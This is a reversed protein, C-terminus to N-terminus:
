RRGYRMRPTACVPGRVVATGEKRIAELRYYSRKGNCVSRDEYSTSDPAFEGIMRYPEKQGAARYLKLGALDSGDRVAWALAVGHSKPTATFTTIPNQALEDFRVVPPEGYEKFYLSPPGMTYQFGDSSIVLGFMTGGSSSVRSITNNNEQGGNTDALVAWCAARDFIPTQELLEVLRQYRLFSSEYYYDPDPNFDGTYHNASAIYRIGHVSDQGYTTDLATSRVQIRAMRGTSFEVIHVLAGGTGFGGDQYHDELYGVAEDLTAAHEMIYRLMFNIPLGIQASTNPSGANMTVGIGKENLGYAVDAWGPPDMTLYAYDGNSPQWHMLVVINDGSATADTNHCLFTGAASTVAFGTCNRIEYSPAEPIEDMDKMNLLETAFNQTVVLKWATEYRLHLAEAVGTALGELHDKISQPVQNQITEYYVQGDWGHGPGAMLLVFSMIRGFDVIYEPYTLGIQRGIEKWTGSFSAVSTEKVVMSSVATATYGRDTHAMLVVWLVTVIIIFLRQQM